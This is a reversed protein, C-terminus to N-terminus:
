LLLLFDRPGSGDKSGSSVIASADGACVRCFCFGRWAKADYKLSLLVLTNAGPETSVSAPEILGESGAELNLPSRLPLQEKEPSRGVWSSNSM